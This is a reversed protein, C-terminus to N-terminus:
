ARTTPRAVSPGIALAVSSLAEHSVRTALPHRSSRAPRRLAFFFIHPFVRSTVFFHFRKKKRAKGLWFVEDRRGSARADDTARAREIRPRLASGRALCRRADFSREGRMQRATAVRLVTVVDARSPVAVCGVFRPDPSSCLM